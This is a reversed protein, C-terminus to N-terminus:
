LAHYESWPVHHVFKDVLALEAAIAPNSSNLESEFIRFGQKELESIVTIVDIISHESLHFEILLQHFPLRKVPYPYDRFLDEFMGFEAEEVDVKLIDVRELQNEQLMQKITQLPGRVRPHSTGHVGIQRFRMYEAVKGTGAITPDYGFIRCKHENYLEEEFSFETSIGLSLVTCNEPVFCVFKGGDGLTGYRRGAPCPWAERALQWVDAPFQKYKGSEILKMRKEVSIQYATERDAHVHSVLKLVILFLFIREQFPM